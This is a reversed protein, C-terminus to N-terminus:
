SALDVLNMYMDRGGKKNIEVYCIYTYTYINTYTYTHTYIYTNVYGYVYVCMYM